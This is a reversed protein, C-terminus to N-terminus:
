RGKAGLIKFFDIIVKFIRKHNYKTHGYRRLRHNSIVEGVKFGQLSLSLPIFRHQGEWHLAIKSLCARKYIRLTCSIDHIKLGTFIRQLANGIKSLVTKLFTDQRAKRWGCVCDFEEKMKEFIRPIDAPDNQLDADMTIAYDGKVMDLGSKLANTQGKRESLTKIKVVGPLQDSFEKLLVFSQDSSGDNVFIIEYSGLSSMTQLIESFLYKLSEEENFVPVVISFKIKRSGEDEGLDSFGTEESM